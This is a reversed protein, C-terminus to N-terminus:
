VGEEVREGTRLLCFEYLVVKSPVSFFYRTPRLEFSRRGARGEWWYKLWSRALVTYLKCLSLCFNVCSNSPSVHGRPALSRVPLLWQCAGGCEWRSREDSMMHWCHLSSYLSSNMRDNIWKVAVLSWRKIKCLCLKHLKITKNKKLVWGSRM